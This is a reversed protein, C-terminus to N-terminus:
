QGDNISRNENLTDEMIDLNMAHVCSKVGIIVEIEGTIRTQQITLKM